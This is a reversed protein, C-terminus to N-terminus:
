PWVPRFAPIMCMSRFRMLSIGSPHVRALMAMCSLYLGLILSASWTVQEISISDLIRFFIVIALVNQVDQEVVVGVHQVLQGALPVISHPLATLYSIM